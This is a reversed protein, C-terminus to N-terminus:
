DTFVPTDFDGEWPGSRQLVWRTIGYSGDSSVTVVCELEQTDSVPVAYRYIAEDVALGDMSVVGDPVSGSRLEGLIRNAELEAVYYQETGEALSSFLRRDAQLTALDLVAFVVLCLIAFISLLAGGGIAPVRPKYDSREM